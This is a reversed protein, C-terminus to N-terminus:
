CAHATLPRGVNTNAPGDAVAFRSNQLPELRALPERGALLLRPASESRFCSQPRAGAAIASHERHLAFLRGDSYKLICSNSHLLILILLPYALVHPCYVTSMIGFYMSM